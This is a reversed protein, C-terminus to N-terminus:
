EKTEDEPGLLKDVGELVEDLLAGKDRAETAQLQSLRYNLATVTGFVLKGSQPEGFPLVEFAPTLREDTANVLMATVLGEILAHSKIVVTWDDHLGLMSLSGVPAQLQLEITRFGARIQEAVIEQFLEAHDGPAVDKIENPNM